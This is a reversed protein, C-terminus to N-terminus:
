SVGVADAPTKLRDPYIEDVSCKRNKDNFQFKIRYMEAPPQSFLSM